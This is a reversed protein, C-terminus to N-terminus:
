PLWTNGCRLCVWRRRWVAREEEYVRMCPRNAIRAIASGVVFSICLWPLGWNGERFGPIKNLDTFLSVVFLLAFFGLTAVLFTYVFWRPKPREPPGIQRAFETQAFTSGRCSAGESSYASMRAHATGQGHIIECKATDNTDCSPCIM